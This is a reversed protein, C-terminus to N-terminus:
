RIETNVNYRMIHRPMEKGIDYGTKKGGGKRTEGRGRLHIGREEAKV